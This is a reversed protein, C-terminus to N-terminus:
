HHLFVLYQDAPDAEQKIGQREEGIANHEYQRTALPKSNVWYKQDMLFYWSWLVIPMMDDVSVLESETSSRPNLKQKTSSVILFGRGMTLGGGTHSCMNPHVAFSANVYWMLVRSGDASLILPCLRDVSMYDMLHSLKRWDNVDPARVRTTLFAIATSADLRARKSVYLTKAVLNHFATLGEESMKETDKDVFLDDPAASTQAQNSKKKVTCFGNDLKSLVKDYVAVIEEVHDIMTIRCQKVHSFDLSMGLYKNIKGHHVKIQGTGVEFVNEYELLLWQIMKDMVKSILHLINCGDIHFCATLQEGKVQKNTM